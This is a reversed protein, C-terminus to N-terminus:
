TSNIALFTNTDVLALLTVKKVSKDDTWDSQARIGVSGLAM